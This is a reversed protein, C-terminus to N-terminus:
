AKSSVEVVLCDGHGTLNGLWLIPFLILRIVLMLSAVLIPSRLCRNVHGPKAFLFSLISYAVWLSPTINQMRVIAFSSDEIVYRLTKESFHTIHFPVHWNIWYRGFLYRLWSKGNPLSIWVRGGPKLIRHVHCLMKKPDLSHELVNSLVCVDYPEAPEFQEVPETFVRFGAKRAEAAARENPELGEAEFGNEEYIKLGRGENCGIDLLRGSGKIEHFSIDGDIALWFRYFASSLFRARLRTYITDKEGGFNYYTEYLGNLEDLSPAPCTQELGCDICRCINWVREIGFRTDFLNQLEVTVKSGCAICELNKGVMVKAHIEEEDKKKGFLAQGTLDNRAIKKNVFCFHDNYHVNYYLLTAM